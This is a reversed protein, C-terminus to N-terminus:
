QYRFNAGVKTKYINQVTWKFKIFNSSSVDNMILVKFFKMMRKFGLIITWFEVALYKSSNPILLLAKMIQDENLLQFSFQTYRQDTVFSLSRFCVAKRVTSMVYTISFIISHWVHLNLPLSNNNIPQTVM